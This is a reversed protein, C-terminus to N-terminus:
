RWALVAELFIFALAIGLLWPSLDTVYTEAGIGTEANIDVDQVWERPTLDSEALSGTNVAFSYEEMTGTTDTLDIHYVGPLKTQTFSEQNENASSIVDGEPNTINLDPYESLPPLQIQAGVDIQDPFEYGASAMVVNTIFIPFFPHSTINGEELVPLFLTVYSNGIKGALLLPVDGSRLLPTFETQWDEIEWVSGWRLGNFEVGTFVDVEESSLQGSITKFGRITILDSEHPPDLVLINGVSWSHPLYGRYVILDYELGSITESPTFNSLEVNPASLIARDVPGPNETVLAVRVMRDPNIGISGSDDGPLVDEGSLSVTIVQPRGSLKWVQSVVSQPPIQIPTRDVELGDVFLIGERIVSQTGFNAINAFVHHNGPSLETTRISTVAQNEGSVGYFHWHFPYGVNSIDPDEFAGDTYIHIEVPLQKTISSLAFSLAAPIDVGVGGAQLQEVLNSIKHITTNRSDGIYVVEGGITLVTVVDRSNLGDLLSQIEDKALDFRTPEEDTALMSSSDDLLIIIQENRDLIFPATIEPRALALSILIAILLDVILLWSVRIQRSKSGRLQVDLFSWLNLSSVIVQRSRDRHMHLGIIVPLTLFGFLGFPNLFNM